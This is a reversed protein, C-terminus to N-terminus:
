AKALRLVRSTKEEVYYPQRTQERWTAVPKDEVMGVTGTGIAERLKNRYLERDRELEKILASSRRVEHAWDVADPPLDVPIDEVVDTLKYLAEIADRTSEMADIPPPERRTVHGWFEEEIAHLQEIAENDRDCEYLEFRRGDVLCAVWGYETGLVMHQHQVQVQVRSPPGAAWEDERFHSTTKCEIIGVPQDGDLTFFDPSALQWARDPHRYMATPVLLECGLDEAARDAVVRELRRGWEMADNDDSEPLEGLKDVYVHYPSRYSDM